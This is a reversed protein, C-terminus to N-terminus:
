SVMMSSLATRTTDEETAVRELSQALSLAQEFGGRKLLFEFVADLVSAASEADRAEILLRLEADVDRDQELAVQVAGSRQLQQRQHERLTDILPTGEGHGIYGPPAGFFQSGNVTLSNRIRVGNPNHQGLERLPIGNRPDGPLAVMPEIASIVLLPVWTLLICLGARRWLNPAGPKILGLRQQIWHAPGGALLSFESRLIPKDHM